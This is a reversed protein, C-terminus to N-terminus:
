YKTSNNVAQQNTSTANTLVMEHTMADNKHLAGEEDLSFHRKGARINPFKLLM